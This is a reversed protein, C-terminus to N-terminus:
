APANPGDLTRQQERKRLELARVNDHVPCLTFASGALYWGLKRAATIANFRTDSHIVEKTACPAESYDCTLKITVESTMM